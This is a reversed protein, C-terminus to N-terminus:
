NLLDNMVFKLTGGSFLETSAIRHNFIEKENFTVKEVYIASDSFNEAVINLTRGGSLKIRASRIHPAGLLFMGSGSIPFIGLVNWIFCSSLGGSDNNGPLGGRGTGFSDKVCAHIIECLKDHRDVFIYSYPTEMDCENNFGEFRHYNAESLEKSPDMSTIQLLSEKGFGFFDDLMKEFAEKGGALAIRDQMNAQPRFSYTYRDGEYYQSKESLIGDADFANVYQSALKLLRQGFDADQTINAVYTLADATDIIHTYREFVGKELFIKFDERELERKTCEEVEDKSILGAYYADLLVYIGLMKAQEECPFIESMGFSCPIKNLTRSINVICDAIKKGMDPYVLLILPILTKYQDWLTALDSTVKDKVGLINEGTMDVPKIISHYLNSYFKEKLTEDDTEIEILSLHEQWIKAADNAVSDFGRKEADINAAALAYSVTSYSLKLETEKGFAEFVACMDDEFLTIQANKVEVAFCLRIGSFIGEFCLKGDPMVECRERIVESHYNDPFLKSLGDNSFDVALKGGEKDFTYKHFATNKNVTFRCLANNFSAEYYGPTAGESDVPHYLYMNDRDGYFPTVIAYNYYYRIAGTGSHHLHSFGRIKHMGDCLKRIGGCSNPYHTGYGTPYGGSYAGVSIKGFPLVAHPTTNGCLAKIYFWKSAVGENIFRDTEGNGYFVDVYKLDM